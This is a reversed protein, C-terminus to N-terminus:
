HGLNKSDPDLDRYTIGQSVGNNSVSRLLMDERNDKNFKFTTVYKDSISGFILNNNPKDASLFIPIPFHKLNGTRTSSALFAFAPTAAVSTSVTGSYATVSQTGNSNGNYTTTRYDLIDTRGDGNVDVPILNYTYTTSAASGEKYQFPYSM